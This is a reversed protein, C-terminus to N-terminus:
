KKNKNRKNNKKKISAAKKSYYKDMAELRKFMNRSHEDDIVEYLSDLDEQDIGVMEMKANFKELEKDSIGM